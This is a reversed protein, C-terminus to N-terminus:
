PAPAAKPTKEAIMKKQDDTLLGEVKTKFDAVIPARGTRRDAQPLAAIKDQAEKAADHIKMKQDDTLKLDPILALPIARSQQILTLVPMHEKLKQKQTDDLVANVDETAKMNLERIKQQDGTAGKLDEKLKTQIETIKTKQDDKLTVLYNLTGVPVTAVTVRGGGRGQRQLAARTRASAAPTAFPAAIALLLALGGAIQKFAKM